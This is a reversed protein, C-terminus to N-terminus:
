TLVAFGIAPAPFTILVHTTTAEIPVLVVEGNIYVEVNPLRGLPHDFSWSSIPTTQSHIFEDGLPHEELYKELVKEVEEEFNADPNIPPVYIVPDTKIMLRWELQDIQKQMSDLLFSTTPTDFLIRVRLYVYTKVDNLKKVDGIFETWMSTNDTISFGDKPGVNLEWLTSFVSNIHLIVDMDFVDYNADIGLLKKISDLISNSNVDSM